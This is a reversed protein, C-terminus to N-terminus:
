AAGDLNSLCNFIRGGVKIFHPGRSQLAWMALTKAHGLYRAANARTMRGDPLLRVRVREIAGRSEAREGSTEGM